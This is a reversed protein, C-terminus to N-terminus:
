GTWGKEIDEVRSELREIPTIYPSDKKPIEKKHHAALWPSGIRGICGALSIVSNFHHSRWPLAQPHISDLGLKSYKQPRTSNVLGTALPLHVIFSYSSVKGEFATLGVKCDKKRDRIRSRQHWHLLPLSPRLGRDVRNSRNFSIRSVPSPPILRDSAPFGLCDTGILWEDPLPLSLILNEFRM